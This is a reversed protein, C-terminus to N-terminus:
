AQANVWSYVLFGTGDIMFFYKGSQPIACVGPIGEAVFRSTIRESLEYNKIVQASSLNIDKSLQKVAYSGKDTDLRWIIHLLGGYVRTPVQIPTGFNFHHCIAEIHNNNASLFRRILLHHPKGAGSVNGSMVFDAVHEFGAKM